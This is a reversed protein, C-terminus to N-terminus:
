IKLEFFIFFRANLFLIHYKLTKVSITLEIVCRTQIVIIVYTLNNFFIYYIILKILTQIPMFLALSLIEKM